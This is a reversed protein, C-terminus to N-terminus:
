RGLPEPARRQAFFDWAYLGGGCGALALGGWLLVNATRDYAAARSLAQRAADIDSCDRSAAQCARAERSATIALAGAVLSGAVSIAGASWLGASALELGDSQGRDRRGAEFSVEAAGVTLRGGEPIRAKQLLAAGSAFLVDVEHTGATLAVPEDLPTTGVRLGDAKVEAGPPAEVLLGGWGRRLYAPLSSAALQRVSDQIREPVIATPRDFKATRREVDVFLPQVQLVTGFPEVSLAFLYRAGSAMRVWCEGDRGCARAAESGQLPRVQLASLQAAAAQAAKLLEQIRQAPLPRSSTVAVAIADEARAEPAAAALLWALALPRLPEM